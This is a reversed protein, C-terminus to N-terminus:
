QGGRNTWRRVDSENAYTFLQKKGGCCGGRKALIHDVDLPDVWVMCINAQTIAAYERKSPNNQLLVQGPQYYKLAIDGSENTQADPHLVKETM